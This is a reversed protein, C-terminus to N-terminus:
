QDINHYTYTHIYLFWGEYGEAKSINWHIGHVDKPHAAEGQLFAGKRELLGRVETGSPWGFSGFTDFSILLFLFFMQHRHCEIAGPAESLWPSHRRGGSQKRLFSQCSTAAQPLKHCSTAAQHSIHSHYPWCWGCQWFHFRYTWTVFPWLVSMEWSSVSQYLSCTSLLLVKRLVTSEFLSDHWLRLISALSSCDIIHQSKMGIFKTFSAASCWRSNKIHAEFCLYQSCLDSVLEILISANQLFVFTNWCTKDPDPNLINWISCGYDDMILWPVPKNMNSIAKPAFVYVRPFHKGFCVGTLLHNGTGTTGAPVWKGLKIWQWGVRGLLKNLRGTKLTLSNCASGWSSTAKRPGEM